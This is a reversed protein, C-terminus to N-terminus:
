SLSCRKESEANWYIDPGNGYENRSWSKDEKDYDDPEDSYYPYMPGPQASSFRPFSKQDYYFYEGEYENNFLM